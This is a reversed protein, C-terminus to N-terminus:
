QEGSLGNNDIDPKTYLLVFLFIIPPFILILLLFFGILGGILEM